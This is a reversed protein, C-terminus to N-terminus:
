VVESPFTWGRKKAYEQREDYSLGLFKYDKRMCVWYRDCEEMRLNTFNTNSVAKRFAKRIKPIFLAYKILKLIKSVKLFVPLTDRDKIISTIRDIERGPASYLRESDIENFIDAVRLRYAGDYQIIHAFLSAFQDANTEGIGMEILFTFISLQLERVARTLHKDKLIYPSFVRWSQRNFSQLIINIKNTSFSAIIVGIIIPFISAIKVSEIFNSKVINLAWLIEPDVYSRLPFKADKIIFEAENEWSIADLTFYGSNENNIQAEPSPNLFCEKPLKM